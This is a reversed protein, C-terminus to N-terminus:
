GDLQFRLTIVTSSTVARGDESAPRYHWHALLHRRAASLFAPDARGVPDVAVVRGNQDITLKLNLVAEEETLLKSQPYPPKLESEPTALRPGLKVPYHVPRTIEPIIGFGGEGLAVTNIKTPGLAEVPDQELHMPPIATQRDTTTVTRHIRTEDTVTKPPPPKPIKIFDIKIPPEKIILPLDMKASMLVAIAAVHIGIIALMANPAPKRAGVIPRNAAYALM